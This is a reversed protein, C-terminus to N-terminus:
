HVMAAHAESVPMRMVHQPATLDDPLCLKYCEDIMAARLLVRVLGKTAHCKQHANKSGPHGPDFSIAPRGGTSIGHLRLGNELADALMERAHHMNM